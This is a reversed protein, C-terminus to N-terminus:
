SGRNVDLPRIRLDRYTVVSHPDHAQIGIHGSTARDGVFTTVVRGNIAVTYRQGVARIEYTNWEGVANTAVFEPARFSYVAGTMTPGSSGPYTEGRDDIQLEYGVDVCAEPDNSPGPCRVFVGSNARHDNVRFQFRLVFDSFDREAYWLTDYGGTAQLDGEETVTFLGSGNSQQWGELRESRILPIFGVEHDGFQHLEAVGHGNLHLARVLVSWGADGCSGIPAHSGSPALGCAHEAKANLEAYLDVPGAFTEADLLLRQAALRAVDRSKSPELEIVAVVPGHPDNARLLLEGAYCRSTPMPCYATPVDPTSYHVTVSSLGRLDFPGLAVVDGDAFELGDAEDSQASAEDLAALEMRKWRLPHSVPPQGELEAVLEISGAALPRPGGSSGSAGRFGGVVVTGSCGSVASSAFVGDASRAIARVRARDCNGALEYAVVDGAEVVGHVAPSLFSVARSADTAAVAMLALATSVLLPYGRM